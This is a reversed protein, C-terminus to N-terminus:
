PGTTTPTAVATTDGLAILNGEASLLYLRGPALAAGTIVYSGEPLSYTWLPTESTPSNAQCLGGITNFTPDQGIGCVYATDAGDIGVLYTEQNFPERFNGIINGVPDLWYIYTGEYVNSYYLWINGKVDVGSDVPLSSYTPKGM